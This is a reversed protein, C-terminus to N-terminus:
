MGIMESAIKLSEEEIYKVGISLLVFSQIHTVPVQRYLLGLM